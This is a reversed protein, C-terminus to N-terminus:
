PIFVAGWGQYTRHDNVFQDLNLGQEELNKHNIFLESPDVGTEEIIWSLSHHVM